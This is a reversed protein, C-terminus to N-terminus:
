VECVFLYKVKPNYLCSKRPRIFICRRRIAKQTVEDSFIDEPVYNSTLFTRKQKLYTHGGKVEVQVPYVDLWLKYDYSLSKAHQDIDEILVNKQGHYGCWWKTNAAKKYTDDMGCIGHTFYSKGSGPPGTIWYVGEQNVLVYNDM